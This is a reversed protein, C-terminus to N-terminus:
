FMRVLSIALIDDFKLKITTRVWESLQGVVTASTGSGRHRSSNTNAISAAAGARSVVSPM